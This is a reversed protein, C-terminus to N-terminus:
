TSVTSGSTADVTLHAGEDGRVLEGVEPGADVGPGLLNSTASANDIPRWSNTSRRRQSLPEIALHADVAHWERDVVHVLSELDGRTVGAV